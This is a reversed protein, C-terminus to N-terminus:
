ISNIKLTSFWTLLVDRSLILLIGKETGRSCFKLVCQFKSRMATVFIRLHKLHHVHLFHLILNLIQFNTTRSPHKSCSVTIAAYASYFSTMWPSAREPPILRISREKVFLPFWAVSDDATPWTIESHSQFLVKSKM